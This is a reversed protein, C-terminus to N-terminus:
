LPSMSLSHLINQGIVTLFIKIFQFNIRDCEGMKYKLDGLGMEDQALPQQFLCSVLLLPICLILFFYCISSARHGRRTSRCSKSLSFPLGKWTRSIKYMAYWHNLFFSMELLQLMQCVGVINLHVLHSTRRELFLVKQTVSVLAQQQLLSM